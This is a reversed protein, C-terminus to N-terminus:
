SSAAAAETCLINMQNAVAYFCQSLAPMLTGSMLGFTIAVILSVFAIIAGYETIGQASEDRCFKRFWGQVRFV